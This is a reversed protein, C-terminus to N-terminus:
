TKSCTTDLHPYVVGDMQTAGKHQLKREINLCSFCQVTLSVCVCVCFFPFM